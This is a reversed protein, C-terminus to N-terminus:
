KYGYKKAVERATDTTIYGQDVYWWLTDSLANLWDEHRGRATYVSEDNPLQNLIINVDKSTGTLGDLSFHKSGNGQPTSATKGKATLASGVAAGAKKVPDAIVDFLGLRTNGSNDNGNWSGSGSGSGGKANLKAYQLALDNNYQMEKFAQEREWNAQALADQEKQYNFNQETWYDKNEAGALNQWYNLADAYPNYDNDREQGYINYAMQLNNNYDSVTDRYRGYSQDEMDRAMAYQNNLQDGEMNYRDMALQYYEPIKENLKLLYQQYAQNGVNQAYSNNYGGTLASAQGITDVMAQKGLQQYQEKANQYLMDGNLSYKFPQRNVIRSYIDDLQQQYPSVYAQPANNKLTAYDNYANQVKEGEKYGAQYEALKQATNDTVGLLYEDKKKAM